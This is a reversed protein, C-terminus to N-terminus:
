TLNVGYTPEVIVSRHTHGAVMDEGLVSAAVVSRSSAVVGAAGLGVNMDSGDVRLGCTLRAACKGLEQYDQALM